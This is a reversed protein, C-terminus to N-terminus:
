KDLFGRKRYIKQCNKQCLFGLAIGNVELGKEKCLEATKSNTGGSLIVYVPLNLSKIFMGTEVAALTTEIDNEGGTMPNGDAQIIVTYPPRKAVM